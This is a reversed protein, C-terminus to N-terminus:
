FLYKVGVGGYFNRDNGPYYYRPESGGFGVANPVISVAYEEDLLNNVGVNLNIQFDKLITFDYAAKLNILQYSDTYLSNADNLPIESVFLANSFFSFGSETILDIGVNVKKDPVGTLDNGSYDNGEDMFEDFEYWNFNASAYPQIQVSSSVEWNYKLMLEAGNHNTKGANVGVYQDEAVREAVLLDNVQITYLAIETYLNNLWTGKFGIEYNWGIEPKLNTNILGEPTLTEDVTPTSFGKSVNVYLNKSSTLEYLAAVRPSVITEFQYDGTQDIDDEAYLDTLSYDTVNVNLGGVLKLKPLVQLNLQAFLNYYNRDQELNAIQSGRISGQDPFDEYLNEYNSGKYNENLFEGGLSAEAPFSFLETKYNFKTRAGISFSNQSLIDFPRPEYADRNNIFVSTTNKFNETFHQTYSIGMLFRDYSEYGKSAGWTYAAKEPNETFDTIGLSSPIYAKLRTFNGIFSIASNERSYLTGNFNFSKSDYDSNSRYGDSQLHNYTAFLSKKEDSYGTSVTNKLLQYSGFISSVKGFSRKEGPEYAFLHIVGGLGSGYLSSNPGKILEVSEMAAVDIDNIATQGDGTTIPIENFYAKLRNTGYQARAGIGRITIRNTNLAAEQTYVGPVRNFAATLLTTNNRNLEKEDLLNVAAPTKELESQISTSKLLVTPLTTSDVVPETQKEQAQLLSTCCIGVVLSTITKYIM